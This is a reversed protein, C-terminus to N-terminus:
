GKGLDGDRNVAEGRDEGVRVLHEVRPTKVLIDALEVFRLIESKRYNAGSVLHEEPIRVIKVGARTSVPGVKQAEVSRTGTKWRGKETRRDKLAATTQQGVDGNRALSERIMAASSDGSAEFTTHNSDEVRLVGHRLGRRTLAETGSPAYTASM